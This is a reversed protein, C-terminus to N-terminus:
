KRLRKEMRRSAVIVAVLSLALLYGVNAVSAASFHGETVDRILHVGQYLPGLQVALQLAPPLAAISAFTDSFVFMAFRVAGVYEFDQWNRMWTSLALGLSSFACGLLLAAPFAAAAVLPTTLGAGVMVVLFTVSYLAGRALAWTLEGLVIESATVPTNIVAEYLRWYKLKAFFNITSEGFTANAAAAALLGPAVFALYPVTRGDSLAVDGVLVGVGWGIAGLYFLPEALGTIVVWWYSGGALFRTANREAVALVRRPSAGRALPAAALAGSM